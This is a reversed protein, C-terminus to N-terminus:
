QAPRQLLPQMEIAARPQHHLPKDIAFGVGLRLGAVQPPLHPPMVVRAPHHHLLPKIKLPIQQLGAALDAPGMPLAHDVPGRFRRRLIHEALAGGVVGQAPHAPLLVPM